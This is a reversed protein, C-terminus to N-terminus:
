REFFQRRALSQFRLKQSQKQRRGCFQHTYQTFWGRRQCPQKLRLCFLLTRWRCLNQLCACRRGSPLEWLTRLQGVFLLSFFSFQGLRHSDAKIRRLSESAAIPPFYFPLCLSIPLAVSCSTPA